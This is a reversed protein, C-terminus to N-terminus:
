ARNAVLKLSTNLDVSDGVVNISYNANNLFAKYAADYIPNGTNISDIAQTLIAAFDIQLKGDGLFVFSDDKISDKLTNFILAETEPQLILQEEGSGPAPTAGFYLPEADYVLCSGTSETANKVMPLTVTTELGNINLGATLIAKSELLNIYANDLAIYNVKHTSGVLPRELFYKIGLMHQSKLYENVDSEKIEVLDFSNIGDSYDPFTAVGTTLINDISTEAYVDRFGVYTEKNMIGIPWLDCSPANPSTANYGNFLYEAVASMESTQILGTDLLSVIAERIVDLSLKKEQGNISLKTATNEYPMNYCVYQGEGYDNGTLKDLELNIGFTDNGYFDFRLLGHDLFDNLFTFFFAMQGAGDGMVVSNIIERLDSAYIFVCSNQLDTHVKLNTALADLTENKLFQRMFFLAVDKVHTLRGLTINKVRLVYAEAEFGNSVVIEKDLTATLKGRTEFFSLKGSLNIVYSDDTIDVALQTVYENFQANDKLASHIFNNIDKESVEFKVVRETPACDLSDVVLAKSWEEKNFSEDYDVPMKGTDFLFIFVFAVPLVIFVVLFIALGTFFKKM